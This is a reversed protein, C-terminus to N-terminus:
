TCHLNRTQVSCIRRHLALHSYAVGQPDAKCVNRACTLVLQGCSTNCFTHSSAKFHPSLTGLHQRWDLAHDSKLQVGPTRTLPMASDESIRGRQLVEGSGSPRQRSASLRWVSTTSLTRLTSDISTNSPYPTSDGQARAPEQRPSAVYGLDGAAPAHVVRVYLLMTHTLLLEM